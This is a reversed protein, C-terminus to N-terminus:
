KAPQAARAALATRWGAVGIEGIKSEIAGRRADLASIKELTSADPTELEKHFVGQFASAMQYYEKQSIPDYKHDHCRACNMTLGLFTQGVTGTIEELEDQRATKQMFESGGVVTNHLGAALFAVAAKGEFGPKIFTM